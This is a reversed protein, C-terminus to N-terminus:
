DDERALMIQQVGARRGFAFRLATRALEATLVPERACWASHSDCVDFAVILTAMGPALTARRGDLRRRPSGSPVGEARAIVTEPVAPRRRRPSGGDSPHWRSPRGFPKTTFHEFRFNEDGNLYRFLRVFTSESPPTSSPASM